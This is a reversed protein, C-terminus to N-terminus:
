HFFTLIDVQTKFFVYKMMNNGIGYQSPKIAFSVHTGFFYIDFQFTQTTAMSLRKLFPLPLAAALYVALALNFM